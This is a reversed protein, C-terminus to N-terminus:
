AINGFATAGLNSDSTCCHRAVREYTTAAIDLVGGVRM